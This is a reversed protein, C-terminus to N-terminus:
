QRGVYELFADFTAALPIIEKLDMGIFPVSVIIHSADRMDFAFAEGGGNSGFLLLGPACDHVQYERNFQDLEGVKWLMAYSNPGVFGEGGNAVRMFQRYAAPFPVGVAHEAAEIEAATAPANMQFRRLLDRLRAPLKSDIMNASGWGADHSELKNEDL